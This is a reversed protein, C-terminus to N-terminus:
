VRVPMIVARCNNNTLVISDNTTGFGIVPSDMFSLADKLHKTNVTVLLSDDHRIETLFRGGKEVETFTLDKFAHTREHDSIVRRWDPFKGATDPEIHDMAKNYAGDPYDMNHVVHLRHGDTAVLSGKDSCLYTLYYRVDKTALAKSVWQEATKPKAPTPPIFWQYLAALHLERLAPTIDGTHLENLLALAQTKTPKKTDISALNM